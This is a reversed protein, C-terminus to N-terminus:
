CRTGGASLPPQPRLCGQQWHCAPDRWVRRHRCWMKRGATGSWLSRWSWAWPPAGARRSGSPRGARAMRCQGAGRRPSELLRKWPCCGCFCNWSRRFHHDILPARMLSMWKGTFVRTIFPLGLAKWVSIMREPTSYLDGMLSCTVSIVARMGSSARGFPASFFCSCTPARARGLKWDFHKEAKWASCFCVQSFFPSM